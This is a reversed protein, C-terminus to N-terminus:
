EELEAIRNSWDEADVTRAWVGDRLSEKIQVEANEERSRYCIMRESM